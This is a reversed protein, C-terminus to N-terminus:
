LKTKKFYPAKRVRTITPLLEFEDKFQRFTSHASHAWTQAWLSSGFSFSLSAKDSIEYALRAESWARVLFAGPKVDQLRLSLALALYM